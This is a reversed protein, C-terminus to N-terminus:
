GQPKIFLKYWTWVWTMTQIASVWTRQKPRLRMDQVQQQQEGIAFPDQEDQTFTVRSDSRLVLRDTRRGGRGTLSIFRAWRNARQTGTKRIMWCTENKRTEKDIKVRDLQGKHKDGQQIDWEELFIISISYAITVYCHHIWSALRPFIYQIVLM